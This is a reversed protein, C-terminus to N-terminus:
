QVPKLKKQEILEIIMMKNRMISTTFEDKVNPWISFYGCGWCFKFKYNRIYEGDYDDIVRDITYHSIKRKCNKCDNYGM